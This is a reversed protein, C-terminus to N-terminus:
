RSHLIRTAFKYIQVSPRAAHPLFASGLLGGLCWPEVMLPGWGVLWIATWIWGLPGKVREGTVRRWFGELVVGVAQMLFFLLVGIDTGNGMGWFAVYHLMGSVFFAGIVGGVRGAVLSFPKAGLSIFDYRFVQHWRSAWFDTLSSTSWPSAFIPPWQSPSQRLITVGIISFADHGIQIAGYILLGVLITITSSRLYRTFPDRISLDYISGGESSGITTPAWLQIALHMSDFIFIHTVISVLALFIFASTPTSPRTPKPVKMGASWNWGCGRLSLTLDAADLLLQTRTPTTVTQSSRRERQPIQSSFTRSLARMSIILMALVMAQNLYRLRDPECVRWGQAVDLSVTTRFTM